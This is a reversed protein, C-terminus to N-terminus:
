VNKAVFKIDYTYIHKKLIKKSFLCLTKGINNKYYMDKIKLNTYSFIIM